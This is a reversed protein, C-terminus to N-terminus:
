IFEGMHAFIERTQRIQSNGSKKKMNKSFMVEM